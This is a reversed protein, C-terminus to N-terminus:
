RKLPSSACLTEGSSPGEILGWHEDVQDSPRDPPTRAINSKALALFTGQISKLGIEVRWSRDPPTVEIQRDASGETLAIDFWRVPDRGEPNELECVRLTLAVCSGERELRQRGSALTPETVEWYAHLWKPDRPQLVILDAGYSSPPSGEEEKKGSRM